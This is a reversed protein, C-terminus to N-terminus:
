LFIMEIIKKTVVTYRQRNKNRKWITHKPVGIKLDSRM